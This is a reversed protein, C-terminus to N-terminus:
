GAQRQVAKLKNIGDVAQQFMVGLDQAKDARDQAINFSRSPRV